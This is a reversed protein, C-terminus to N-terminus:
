KKIEEKNWRRRLETEAYLAISQRIHHGNGKLRGFNELDEILGAALYIRNSLENAATELDMKTLEQASFNKM